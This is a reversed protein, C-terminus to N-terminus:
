NTKLRYLVEQPVPESIRWQDIVKGQGGGVEAILELPQDQIHLMPTFTRPGLLTPEDKYSNMVDVVAQADTTGAKEVAKAWLEMFAWIPFAYQTAPRADWRKEFREALQNVEPRPDDGYASAQIPVYFDKLGPVAEQWYLGDMSQSGFVPIDIGAARIQRLAGPAGPMSSCLVLVDVPKEATVSRFRTIQSAISPDAGKFVDRGVIEGGVKPFAWDFGACASKNYELTEDLLVYATKFDKKKMGWEALTAGEVQAANSSTFSFPGVGMVGAKPDGACLFVSVVGAQQAQLAAPAGYDYDCTAFVIVAGDRVVRQGAKAGEVRDSKTDASVAKLQKGLLGGKANQEEMWLLAMKKSDSDYANMAGSDAVAFGLVIEDAAQSPVAGITLATGLALIGLFRSAAM